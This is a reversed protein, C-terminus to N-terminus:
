RRPSRNRGPRRVAYNGAVLLLLAVTATLQAVYHRHASTTAVVFGGVIVLVLVPLVYLDFRRAAPNERWAARLRERYTV